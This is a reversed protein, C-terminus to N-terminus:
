AIEAATFSISTPGGRTFGLGPDFPEGAKLAIYLQGVVTAEPGELVENSLYLDFKAGSLRLCAIKGHPLKTPDESAEQSAWLRFYATAEREFRNWDYSALQIYDGQAGTRTTIPLRLAM